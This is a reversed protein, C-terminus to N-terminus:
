DNFKTFESDRPFYTYSKAKNLSLADRVLKIRTTLITVQSELEIIKSRLLHNNASVENGAIKISNFELELIARDEYNLKNLIDYLKMKNLKNM